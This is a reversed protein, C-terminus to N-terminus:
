LVSWQEIKQGGPDKWSKEFSLNLFLRLRDKIKESIPWGESFWPLSEGSNLMFKLHPYSKHYSIQITGLNELEYRKEIKQFITRKKFLIENTEKNIFLRDHSGIAAATLIFIICFAFIAYRSEEDESNILVLTTPEQNKFFTELKEVYLRAAKEKNFSHGLIRGYHTEFYTEYKFKKKFSKSPKKEKPVISIKRIKDLSLFFLPEEDLVTERTFGCYGSSDTTKTCTLKDQSDFILAFVLALFAVSALIWGKPLDRLILEDESEKSIRM